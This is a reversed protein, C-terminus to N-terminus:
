RQRVGQKRRRREGQGRREKQLGDRLTGDDWLQLKEIRRVEGVDEWDEEELESGSVHDVQMPVHM